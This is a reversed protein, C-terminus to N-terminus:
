PLLVKQQYIFFNLFRPFINFINNVIFDRLKLDNAIKKIYEM